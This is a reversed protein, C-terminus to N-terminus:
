TPGLMFYLIILLIFMRKLNTFCFLGTQRRMFSWDVKSDPSKELAGVLLTRVRTLRDAIGQVEKKWQERLTPSCLIM